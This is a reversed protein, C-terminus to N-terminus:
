ANYYCLGLFTYPTWQWNKWSKALGITNVTTSKLNRDALSIDVCM